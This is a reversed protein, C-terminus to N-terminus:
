RNITYADGYAVMGTLGEKWLSLLLAKYPAHQRNLKIDTAYMSMSMDMIINIM